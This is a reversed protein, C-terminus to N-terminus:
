IQLVGQVIFSISDLKVARQCRASLASARVTLTPQSDLGRYDVGTLQYEDPTPGCQGDSASPLTEALSITATHNPRIDAMIVLTRGGYSDAFILRSGDPSWFFSSASFTHTEANPSRLNDFQTNGVGFPYLTFGVTRLDDPRVGPPRNGVANRTLDYIMYHDEPNDAGHPPFFKIFALYTGKPSLVPEYCLFNDEITNSNLGIVAVSWIDGNFMGIVVVKDTTAEEISNIQVINDPLVLQIEKTGAKHIALALNKNPAKRSEIRVSGNQYVIPKQHEPDFVKATDIPQVIYGGSQQAFAIGILGATLVSIVILLSNYKM